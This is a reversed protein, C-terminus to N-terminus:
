FGLTIIMGEDKHSGLSGTQLTIKGAGCEVIISDFTTTGSSSISSLFEPNSFIIDTIRFEPIFINDVSTNYRLAEDFITIDVFNQSGLEAYTSKFKFYLIDVGVPVTVTIHHQGDFAVTIGPGTAKVFYKKEGNPHYYMISGGAAAPKEWTAATGLNNVTLVKGADGLTFAPLNSSGSSPSAWEATGDSKATLVKSADIPNIEPIKDLKTKDAPLMLSAEAKSGAPVITPTGTGLKIEGKSASPVYVINPIAGSDAWKFGGSGNSSLVQGVSGNETISKLKIVSITQDAIDANTITKDIIKSSSVVDNQLTTINGSSTVDGSLNANTTVTAANGSIDGVVNGIFTKATINGASFDGSADRKVITMATNLHTSNKTLNTGANIDAATAGGVTLVRPLDATGTLDGALKIKGKLSTTADSVTAFNDVYAKVAKVTPYKIDSGADTIINTSKNLNNEKLNIATQVATSIPKNIDSTNDVNSLGLDSKDLTVVGIKGAVSQVPSSPSLLEIWNAEISAPLASLIYTKHEDTRVVTSGVVAVSLALMKSKSDMVDVSSSSISPIQSVPIKGNIDLTAVGNKAAKETKDIKSNLATSTATSVAKDKDSTNDVLDLGVDTKKLSLLGKLQDFTFAIPTTSSITNNGLITNPAIAALALNVDGETATGTLGSGAYVATIDGSSSLKDDVYKKTSADSDDTPSSLNTIKFSTSADGMAIDAKAAGFGSVPILFKSIAEAKSSSNGIFFQDKTLSLASPDVAIGGSIDKWSFTGDGNSQLVSGSKGNDLSSSLGKLSNASVANRAIKLPDSQIGLGSLSNDHTITTIMEVWDTGDHIYVKKNTTNYFVDGEKGISPNIIGSPNEGRKEDVYKKTAADQNVSPDQLDSIKKNGASAGKILVESLTQLENTIDGDNDADIKVKDEPLMIGAYTGNAAPLVVNNGTSSTITIKDSGPIYDLNTVGLAPSVWSIVSGDTKLVKGSNGLQSPLLAEIADAATIKGTGGNAISVVGRVNNATGSIDIQDGTNIGSISTIGLKTKITETTEASSTVLNDTYAKVAKVTPYKIDSSADTQINISKNIKEEKLDLSTKAANSIPKNIDSTNDVNSLGVDNKELTIVGIKGSVSQVSSTPTLLEIWNAKITSPLQSLIYTKYEDTRVVTSGIVASSLALMAAETDLVDVTSSSISPIQSVPIKGNLDLSAVGNKAAKETKDIKTNLAINTADSVSKEKDSTNDVLELGIDTKTLKLSNKLQDFPIAIPTASTNTNNGLISNANINALSLTVDGQTGSGTLGAGSHVATIDGAMRVMADVYQKNAADMDETPDSLDTIKKNTASSGKDLVQSLSQLENTPDADNDNDLKLKDLPPMLGANNNNVLPIITNKGNTNTLIGDTPNPVYVLDTKTSESPEWSVGNWKLFYGTNAGMSNLNSGMITNPAIERNTIVADRIKLNDYTGSVDGGFNTSKDIKVRNLVNGQNASLASNVDTSLLNDVLKVGIGGGTLIKEDVYRKTAADNINLPESLDSIRKNGASPGRDLVQSLTQIENGPDSDGDGGSTVTAPIWGFGNWQLVQGPVASMQSINTGLITNKAIEVNTVVDRKIKINNYFGFVDGDVNLTSPIWGFGNWYLVQGATASMQSINSGLITNSAIDKNTIVGDKIKINDYTGSVDGDFIATKDIKAEMSQVSQWSNGDNFYILKTHTNYYLDGAKASQPEASSNRIKSYLSSLDVEALPFGKKDNLILKTEKLVAESLGESNSTGDGIIGWSDGTWYMFKKLDLDYVLLSVSTEDRSTFINERMITTLRPILIGQSDSSVELMAKPNAEINKKGIRVGGTQANSISAFFLICLIVIVQKM